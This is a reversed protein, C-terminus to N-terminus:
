MGPKVVMFFVVVLLVLLEFRSVSILRKIRKTVEPDTAGKEATLQSVRGSEPGLFAAGVVISFAIGILGVAVFPDEWDWGNDIVLWIGAALVVISAPMFVRMGVWEAESSFRQIVAPDTAKAARAGLVQTTISGGVWVIAGLIHLFLLSEYLSM